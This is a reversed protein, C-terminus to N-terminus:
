YVYWPPLPMADTFSSGANASTSEYTRAFDDLLALYAMYRAEASVLFQEVNTLPDGEGLPAREVSEYLQRFRHLIGTHYQM